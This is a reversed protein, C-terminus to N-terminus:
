VPKAKLVGIQVLLGTFDYVRRERVIRGEEVDLVFMMTFQFPRGSPPLGMLPGVSTGSVTSMVAAHHGDIIPPESAFAADPFASFFADFSRLAGEPGSVTGALPSHIRANAAYVGAYGEPDRQLIAQQWGNVLTLVEDRTM